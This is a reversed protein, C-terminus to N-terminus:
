PEDWYAFVEDVNNIETNGGGTTQREVKEFGSLWLCESLTTLAVGAPPQYDAEVTADTVTAKDQGAGAAAHIEDFYKAYNAFTGKANTGSLGVETATGNLEDIGLTGSFNAIDRGLKAEAHVEDFFRAWLQYGPGRLEGVTSGANFTDNQVRTDTLGNFDSFFAKDLGEGTSYAMVSPFGTAKNTYAPSASSIQVWAPNGVFTDDGTSDELTVKDAAANVNVRTADVSGFGYATVSYKPTTLVAELPKLKLTDAGPTDNLVLVDPKDKGGRSYATITDFGEAHRWAGLTLMRTTITTSKLWDGQLSGRFIATDAGGADLEAKAIMTTFGQLNHFYGDGTARAWVPFFEVLDNGNSDWITATDTGGGGRGYIRDATAVISVGGGTMEAFGPRATYTNAAGSGWIWVTDEGGAGDYQTAEINVATMAYGPGTFEAGDAHITAIDAGSGGTFEVRDEGGAGDFSLTVNAGSMPYPTNNLLVLWQGSGSPMIQLLDPGATGTLTRSAPGPDGAKTVTVSVAQTDSGGSGDSVQVTVDYVNNGGADTPTEFDPATKFALAGTAGNITFKAADAGGAIGYSLTQAPRDVDTATVTTVATTNEVISKGAAAGGGDSTIVPAENADTVTVNITQTDTGGSGDSVQVTVEYVNNAGADTPIEFNPASLFALAGSAGNITFKAADAGGIISYGLTQAPLDVDTATVTTVATANEAVSKVATAGGGDSAIVPAENVDTVTVTFTKAYALAPTGGDTATVVVEYTGKAERDLAGDTLVLNLGSISFKAGDAGGTISYSLTNWPATSDPDTGTLGGVVYGGATNTNEVVSNASLALGTPAENRDNVVITFTQAYALSPTGGDRVTVQVEYSEKREYDLVGDRLVLNSGSITFKAADAGGSVSYALTNWPAATDPDTGSLTGVVHGATTNVNEDVTSASLGLATPADNVDNTISVAYDEVEGTLATGTYSLTQVDSYRFRAYTTGLKAWEPVMVTVSSTGAPMLQGRLLHEQDDNWDGDGNFDFWANLYGSDRSTTVKITAPSGPVLGTLFEIGREDASGFTDDGTAGTSPRGNSESDVDGAATGLYWEPTSGIVHRAGNDKLLTPFPAPADGYDMLGDDNWIGIGVNLEPQVDGRPDIFEVPDDSTLKLFFREDVEINTDGYVVVNFTTTVEPENQSAVVIKYTGGQYSRWAVFGDAMQPYWDHQTNNSIDVQSTDPGIATYFVEWNGGTSRHWVVRGDNVHPREDPVSNNTLRVPAGGRGLNYYYIETDSGDSAQWVIDDQSIEPYSDDQLNNTLRNSVTGGFEYVFLEYDQGDFGEWVVAYDSIKPNRDDVSNQTLPRVSGDYIWIDNDVGDFSTWVARSGALLPKEDRATNNTLRQTTGDAISYLYIERDSGDSASWAVHTDSVQVDLDDVSNNTLQRVEDSSVTYLFVEFDSGSAAKGSWVVFDNSVTGFRDDRNNDQEVGDAYNRDSVNRIEKTAHDYLYIDWDNGDFSEWVLFDGSVKYDYSNSSTSNPLTTTSWTAPPPSALTLPIRSGADGPQIPRYDNDAVTASGNLTELNLTIPTGFSESVRVTVTVQTEGADGETVAVDDVRIEAKRFNGFDLDSVLDGTQLDVTYSGDPNVTVGAPVSTSANPYTATWDAPVAERVLYSGPFLGEFTYTGYHDTIDFPELARDRMPDFVGNGNVDVYDFQANPTAPYQDLYVLFGRLPIEQLAAPDTGEDWVGNNNWDFFKRGTITSNGVEIRLQYDEVEGDPAAGLPSQVSPHDSSYRFRAFTTMPSLNAPIDVAFTHDGPTLLNPTFIVQEGRDLKGDFNKDEGVDLVGNGNADESAQWVGDANFDIWASLYGQGAVTVTFQGQAGPTLRGWVVGDEDDKTPDAVWFADHDDGLADPDPQGDSEPDVLLGLYITPALNDNADRALAHRAGNDDFLTDYPAPADGFDFADVDDNQITVTAVADDLIVVGSNLTISVTFTEDNERKTDGNVGLSITATVDAPEQRAIMLRNLAGSRWVVLDESVLPSTDLNVPDNSVNGPTLFSGLRQHMIERDGGLRLTEWVVDYGTIAGGTRRAVIQPRADDMAANRSVNDTQATSIQYSYIDWDGYPDSLSAGDFGQWVIYDGALQVDNSDMGDSTVQVTARSLANYLFIDYDAGDRRRWVINEGDVLPPTDEVENNTVQTVTGAVADYLYIEYDKGDNGYWVVRAGSVQPDFDDMSGHGVVLDSINRTTATAGNRVHVNIDRDTATQTWWTVYVTGGRESIQPDADTLYDETLKATTGVQSKTATNYTYLYIEADDGAGGPGLNGDRGVWTVYVRSGDESLAIKPSYDDTANVTLQKTEGSTGDYLYIDTDQGGQAKWVVYNGAVDYEPVAVGGGGDIVSALAEALNLRGGSVTRGNLAPIPDATDMVAAKITALSAGPNAAMLMAVAGTVHPTAMSTGSITNYTGGLWTSLIEQGPAGVDVTTAGYNSFYALDDYRDTAAVAIIGDLDYSSPNHGYVDNDVGDNGAAAIFMVGANNSVEIADRLAQSYFYGGWSNNSAVVNVGRVTKMTTIYGLSEIAAGISVSSGAGGIKLAMIEVDWNVGAVGLGNNGVAGFTGATHTGHGNQDMPDSDGSYPDIGYVDDVYGNGDNDIGDGAVEGPNRWMNGALDPHSYDVGSDINAIVVTSSGTFTDWAEPADIDADVVGGSQGINHMGWLEGFRTDNPAAALTALYDPEAYKVMPDASWQAATAPVDANPNALQAIVGNIIPLQRVATAGKAALWSAQGAQSVSDTFRVILRGPTYPATSSGSGGTSGGSSGSGPTAAQGGLLGLEESVWQGGPTRQPGITVQGSGAQYDRDESAPSGDYATGDSTAYDLVITSGYSGSVHVKVEVPTTGIDGEQVSVDEIWVRPKHFNGFNADQFREGEGLNVTYYHGAAHSQSTPDTFGAPLSVNLASGDASRLRVVGEAATAAIGLGPTNNVALALTAAVDAATHHSATIVVARRTPTEVVSGAPGFVYSVGNVVLTKGNATAPAPVGVEWTGAPLHADANPYTPMEAAPNVIEQRVTYNGAFLGTFEYYGTEDVDPTTLDDSRTIAWPEAPIKNAADGPYWEGDTGVGPIDLFVKRNAVGPEQVVPEGSVPDLRFAFQEIQLLDSLETQTSPRMLTMSRTGDGANMGIHAGVGGFGSGPTTASPDGSAWELSKYTFVVIDGAPDDEIYLSFANRADTNTPDLQNFYGVDVWDIQAYTRGQATMSKTLTVLGAGGRTDADAWFPAIIPTAQPFGQPIFQGLANGFTINGNNNIFFKDYDTGYFNLTFGLDQEATSGDDTNSLMQTGAGFAPLDSPSVLVPNNSWAGDANLDDFQWGSISGAGIQVAVRHDEVEGYWTQGSPASGTPQAAGAAASSLRLRLFTNGAQVGEPVLFTESVQSVGGSAVSRSQIVQERVLAGSADTYDAWVGDGNLDIWASLFAASATRNIVDAKLTAYQGPVLGDITQGSLLTTTLSALGDEDAYLAADDGLADASPQGNSERDVESGLALQPAGVADKLITHWAGNDALLTGYSAPADGFDVGGDDNLIVVTGTNDDIVAPLTTAASGTLRVNQVTAGNVIVQFSEDEEQITDGNIVLSIKEVVAAEGQTAFMLENTQTADDYKRWVILDGSGTSAIVPYRDERSEMSVNQRAVGTELDYTMIEYNNGLREVEWVVRSGAIRPNEDDLGANASVNTTGGSPIHYRYIDWDGRDAPNTPDTGDYGQWVVNDGSVAPSNDDLANNTITTTVASNVDHLYIEYDTGDYGRWVIRSGDIKAEHDDLNDNDTVAVSTGAVADYLYIERDKGDFGTWVVRSGSIQPDEDKLGAHDYVLASVNATVKTAIDYVFIDRGTPTDEWWTVHTDSVQPDGVLNLTHTVQVTTQTNIDYLYIQSDDGTGGAGFVGDHGVWVVNSGHIKVSGSPRSDNTVQRSAGTRANRLFIDSDTGDQAQWAVYDGSVDYYYDPLDETIVQGVLFQTFATFFNTPDNRFDEIDFGAGGTARAMAGYRADTNGYWGPGYAPSAGIYAFLADHNVLAAMAAAFESDSADDDEDTLLVLAVKSGTRYNLTTPPFGTPDFENLGEVVAISGAEYGGQIQVNLFAGAPNTFTAFDTVDQTMIAEWGTDGPYEVLAYQADIGAALMAADMLLLNTQVDSISSGMTGSTDFLFVIDVQNTGVEEEPVSTAVGVPTWAGLPTGHPGITIQGSAALYDNDDPDSSGDKLARYNPDPDNGDQTQYGVVVTSGYSEKVRVEVEVTKTGSDGEAVVANGIEVHPKRYNGFNAGQFQEGPLQLRVTYSGDAGSRTTVDQFAATAVNASLTAGADAKLTVLDGVVSASVDLGPAGNVASAVASAVDAATQHAPTIVVARRTPTQVVSGNKDFEFTIVGTGDDITFTTGDVIAPGAQVVRLRQTGSPLLSAQAPYTQVVEPGPLIERVQYSGPFLGAFKYYGTEDVDPTALDDSLTAMRPEAARWNAPNPDSTNAPDWASNNNLDLYVEVGAFGPEPRVPVGTVPDMRFAFREIQLLDSLEEPSKPRMLSQYNTGDGANVGVHAGLGGFGGTGTANGTTWGMSQYDFIVIDGAPDDEIYLSFANRADTNNANTQDFYGVDVWDVQVYAHGRTSTGRTLRVDGANTRTDADAWFPALIPTSYPFGQPIFQGQAAGFSINGNNNIYFQNYTTGYFQFGDAFQFDQAATSGDDINALVQQGSGFGALQVPPIFVSSGHNNWVGNANLDEFKWGSISGTGTVMQVQHDEVEGFWTQGTPASGTPQAVSATSSGLRLRLFTNGAQLGEPVLFTKSVQGGSLISQSAIVQERVLNGQADTYDAWVGDGNLDVWASLYAPTGSGTTKTVDVKLTAYQGAVLGNVPVGAVFSTLSALGDEDNGLPDNDDATADASTRSSNEPDATAGLALQVNGASDSQITHGAQGYSAPADGYDAGGDDNLIVITGSADVVVAPVMSGVVNVKVSDLVLGFSEDNEVKTDGKILLPIKAVVEAESQRAFMLRYNEGDFNRWVIVDGSVLPYRDENASMSVNQRAIGAELDYQMVEYNGDLRKVDWVVRNGDIRPDEDDFSANASVNTTGASPIHYRYIDWDGRDAANTPDAGDYGQWVVNDGSLGPSNDDVANDTIKTTVGSNVDHLYIEYDTGDYGRWVIRSGDIKAESDDLGLNGTVAVSTGAAADYRYI